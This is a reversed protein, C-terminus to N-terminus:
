AVRQKQGGSLQSPYAKAKDRLGIRHLLHLAQTEAETRSMLGCKVPALTINDLITLNAFLNFHQFVMGVKSRYHNLGNESRDVPQGHFLVEGGTPTELFNMCRMVTSKGAGSPGLLFVVEGKKVGVSVGDIVRHDGFEKVLERVELINDANM